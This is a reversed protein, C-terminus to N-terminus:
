GSSKAQMLKEIANFWVLHTQNNKELKATIAWIFYPSRCNKDNGVRM